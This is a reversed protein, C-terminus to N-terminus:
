AEADRLCPNFHFNISTFACCGFYHLRGQSNLRASATMEGFSFRQRVLVPGQGVPWPRGVEAHGGGQVPVEARM